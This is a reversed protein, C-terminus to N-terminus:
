CQAIRGVIRGPILAAAGQLSWTRHFHPEEGSNAGLGGRRTSSGPRPPGPPESGRTRYAGPGLTSPGLLGPDPLLRAGPGFPRPPDSRGRASCCQTPLRRTWSPPDPLLRAWGARHPPRPPPGNCSADIRTSIAALRTM